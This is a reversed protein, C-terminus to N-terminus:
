VRVYMCLHLILKVYITINFNKSLYLLFFQQWAYQKENLMITFLTFLYFYFFCNIFLSVNFSYNTLNFFEKQILYVTIYKSELHCVKCDTHLFNELVWADEEMPEAQEENGSPEESQEVDKEADEEGEKTVVAEKQKSSGDKDSESKAASQEESKPLKETSKTEQVDAAGEKKADEKVDKNEKDMKQEGEQSDNKESMADYVQERLEDRAEETNHHFCKLSRYVKFLFSTLFM